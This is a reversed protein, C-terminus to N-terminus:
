GGGRKEEHLANISFVRADVRAARFWKNNYSRTEGIRRKGNDNDYVVEVTSLCYNISTDQIPVREYVSMKHLCTVAACTVLRRKKSFIKFFCVIQFLLPWISCNINIHYPM